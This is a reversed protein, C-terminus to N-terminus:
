KSFLSKIVRLEGQDFTKTLSILTFYIGSGFLLALLKQVINEPHLFMLVAGMALASFLVQGLKM